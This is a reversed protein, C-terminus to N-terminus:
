RTTPPAQGRQPTQQGTPPQTTPPQGTTPPPATTTVPPPTTTAPPTTTTPPTSTAPPQGSTPPATTTPASGSPHQQDAGSEPPAKTDGTPDQQHQTPKGGLWGVTTGQNGGSLPSGRLLEIGTVVGMGLLFALVTGGVLVQWRLRRAPRDGDTSEGVPSLLRTEEDTAPRLLRTEEDGAALGKAGPLAPRHLKVTEADGARWRVTRHDDGQWRATPAPGGQRGTAPRQRHVAPRQLDTAGRPGADREPGAAADAAPGDSEDASKVVWAKAGVKRVGEKTRELSHQYLVGGITSVVSAVGAGVVTGAVGLKSGLFAATVAALAGGAVQTTKIDLKRSSKEQGM